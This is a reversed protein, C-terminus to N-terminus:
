RALQQTAEDWVPPQRCDAITRPLPIAAPVSVLWPELELPAKPRPPAKPKAPPPAAPEPDAEIEGFLLGQEPGLGRM